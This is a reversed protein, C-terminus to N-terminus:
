LILSDFRSVKEAFIEELVREMDIEAHIREV